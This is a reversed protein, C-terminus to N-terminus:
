KSVQIEITQIGWRVAAAYSTFVDIHPTDGYWGNRPTDRCELAGWGEVTVVSGLWELPCAAVLGHLGAHPTSGDRFPGCPFMPNAPHPHGFLAPFTEVRERIPQPASLSPESVPQPTFVFAAWGMYILLSIV